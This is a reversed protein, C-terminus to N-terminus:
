GGALTPMAPAGPLNTPGLGPPLRAPALAQPAAAPVGPHSRPGIGAPLGTRMGRLVAAKQPGPTLRLFTGNMPQILTVLASNLDVVDIASPFNTDTLEVRMLNTSVTYLWETTAGSRGGVARIQGEFGAATQGSFAPACVLSLVAFFAN